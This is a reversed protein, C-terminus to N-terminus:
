SLDKERDPEEERITELEITGTGECTSCKAKGCNKGCEMCHGNRIESECCDSCPITGEGDCEPCTDM